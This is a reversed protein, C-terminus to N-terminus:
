GVLNKAVLDLDIGQLRPPRYLITDESNHSRYHALAVRLSSNAYCYLCGFLCTDYAGIDVSRVCGCGPRTPRPELAPSLDPRLQRVLVPDVCRARHIPPATNPRPRTDLTLEPVTAEPPIDDCCVYLSIGHRGATEAFALLLERQEQKYPRRPSEVQQTTKELQCLNRGTKRYLDVFSTYCRRTAGELASSLREFNELHFSVPTLRSIVVPDYRWLVLEPGILDALRKVTDVAASPSPCRPDLKRPYGNITYHFYFRYGRNHLERLHPLLPRVNRTWFVIVACDEPRLSVRYVQGGFPNVWHCFGARIRNLFWRAYFAPIDTRRSASIIHVRSRLEAESPYAM